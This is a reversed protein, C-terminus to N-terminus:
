VPAVLVLESHNTSVESWTASQYLVVVRTVKMVRYSVSFVNKESTLSEPSNRGRQPLVM